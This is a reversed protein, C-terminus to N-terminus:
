TALQTLPEALQTLPEAVQYITVLADIYEQGHMRAVSIRHHGDRVIYDNGIQILEVPPLTIGQHWALAISYWRARSHQQLPYFWRNFDHSRGESGVIQRIPVVRLGGYFSGRLQGSNRYDSLTRLQHSRGTLIAWCRSLWGLLCVWRHLAQVERLIQTEHNLKSYGNLQRSALHYGQGDLM